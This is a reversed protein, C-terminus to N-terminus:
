PTPGDKSQPQTGFKEQVEQRVREETQPTLVALVKEVVEVLHDQPVGMERAIRNVLEKVCDQKGRERAREPEKPRATRATSADDVMEALILCRVNEGSGPNGNSQGM